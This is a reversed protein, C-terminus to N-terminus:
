DCNSGFIRSSRAANRWTRWATLSRTRWGRRIRFRRRGEGTAQSEMDFAPRDANRVPKRHEQQGGVNRIKRQCGVSGAKRSPNSIEEEDDDDLNHASTQELQNRLRGVEQQLQLFDEGYKKQVPKWSIRVESVISRARHAYKLTNLTEEFSSASPSCHAIMATRTNGGLSDKLLRTLRSDRYNVYM